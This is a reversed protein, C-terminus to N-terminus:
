KTSDIFRADRSGKNEYANRTRKVGEMRHIELRIKELEETLKRIINKDMELIEAMKNRLSNTILILKNYTNENLHPEFGTIECFDLGLESSAQLLLYKGKDARQRLSEFKKERYECFEHIKKEFRENLGAEYDVIPSKEEKENKLNEEVLISFEQMTLKLESYEELEQSYSEILSIIKAVM